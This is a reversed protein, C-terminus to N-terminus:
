PGAAIPVWPRGATLKTLVELPRKGQKRATSLYSRIALFREAGTTTRWCGSIKQQLKVMRLDRECLNNDFPVRFDHAFRLTEQEREDLRLLLNQAKARKPRRGAADFDLAPNQEYGLRIVARYSAHCQSLQQETLWDLGESQAREVLEKTDLLLCSMGSAWAQGDEEAGQLERLHHANRLAHLADTSPAIRRGGM